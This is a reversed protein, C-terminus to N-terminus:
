NTPPATTKMSPRQSFDQYWRALTPHRQRWGDNPFRLDLYGLMCGTAIHGITLPGSLDEREVTALGQHAKRMQGETWGNWRKDEPRM